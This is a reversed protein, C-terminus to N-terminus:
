NIEKKYRIAGETLKSDDEFVYEKLLAGFRDKADKIIEKIKYRKETCKRWFCITGLYPKNKTCKSIEHSSSTTNICAKCPFKLFCGFGEHVCTDCSHHIERKISM